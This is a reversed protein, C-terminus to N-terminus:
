PEAIAANLRQMTEPPVAKSCMLHRKEGPPMDDFRLVKLHQAEPGAQEILVAAEEEAAFMFDARHRAVMLAMQSNEVTTATIQVRRQALLGDAYPGYSFREKVLVTVDPQALVESLLRTAPQFGRYALAVSPRDQYLPRSFLAFQEREANRFWGLACEPLRSDKIQQLQRSSPLEVWRFPIGAANLARVAPTATLGREQQEGATVAYPPRENYYVTLPPSDGGAAARLLWWGLVVVVSAKRM